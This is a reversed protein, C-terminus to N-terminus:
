VLLPLLLEDLMNTEICWDADYGVPHFDEGSATALLMIWTEENNL